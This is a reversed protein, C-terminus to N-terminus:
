FVPLGIEELLRQVGEVDSATNEDTLVIFDIEIEVFLGRMRLAEALRETGNMRELNLLNM